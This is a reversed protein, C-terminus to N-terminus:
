RAENNEARIFRAPKEGQDSGWRSEQQTCNLREACRSFAWSLRIQLGHTFLMNILLKYWWWQRLESNKLANQILSDLSTSGLQPVSKLTKPQTCISAALTVWGSFRDQICCGAELTRRLAWISLSSMKQRIQCRDSRCCEAGLCWRGARNPQLSRFSLKLVIPIMLSQSGLEIRIPCEFFIKVWFLTKVLSKSLEWCLMSLLLEFWLVM